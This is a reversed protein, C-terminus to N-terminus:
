TSRTAPMGTPTSPPPRRHSPVPDPRPTLINRAVVSRAELIATDFRSQGIPLWYFVAFVAVTAGLLKLQRRPM